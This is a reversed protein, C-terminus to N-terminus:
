RARERSNQDHQERVCVQKSKPRFKGAFCLNNPLECSHVIKIELFFVSEDVHKVIQQRHIRQAGQVLVIDILSVLRQRVRHELSKALRLLALQAQAVTLALQTRRAGQEILLAAIRGPQKHVTHVRQEEQKRQSCM